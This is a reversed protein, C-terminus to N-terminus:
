IIGVVKLVEAIKCADDLRNNDILEIIKQYAHMEMVELIEITDNKNQNAM